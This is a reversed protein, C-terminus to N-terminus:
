SHTGDYIFGLPQTVKAIEALLDALVQEADAFAYFRGLVYSKPDASDDFALLEVTKIKRQGTEAGTVDIATVHRVNLATQGSPLLIFEGVVAPLNGASV